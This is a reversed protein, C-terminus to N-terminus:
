KWSIKTVIVMEAPKSPLRNWFAEYMEKVDLLTKCNRFFVNAQLDVEETRAKAIPKGTKPNAAYATVKAISKMTLYYLYRFPAPM